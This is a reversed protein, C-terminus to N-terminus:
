LACLKRYASYLNQMFEIGNKGYITNVLKILREESDEELLGSKRMFKWIQALAIPINKVRKEINRSINTGSDQNYWAYINNLPIIHKIIGQIIMTDFLFMDECVDIRDIGADHLTRNMAKFGAIATSTHIPTNHISVKGCLSNLESILYQFPNDYSEINWVIDTGTIRKPVPLLTDQGYKKREQMLYDLSEYNFPDDIDQFMVYERTAHKIGAYRSKHTGLNLPNKIVRRDSLLKYTNDTSGDDIFIYEIDIDPRIASLFVPIHVEANFCPIIVSLPYKM